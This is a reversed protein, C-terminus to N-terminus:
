LPFTNTKNSLTVQRAEILRAGRAIGISLKNIVESKINVCYITNPSTLHLQLKNAMATSVTLILIRKESGTYSDVFAEKNLIMGSVEESDVTTVGTM